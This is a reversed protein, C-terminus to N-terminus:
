APRSMRRFALPAPLSAARQRLSFYAVTVVLLLVAILGLALLRAPQKRPRPIHGGPTGEPPAAVQQGPSPEPTMPISKGTRGPFGPGDPEQAYSGSTVM